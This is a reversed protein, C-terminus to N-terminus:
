LNFIKRWWSKKEKKRSVEYEGQKITNLLDVDEAENNIKVKLCEEVLGKLRAIETEVVEGDYEANHMHSGQYSAQKQDLHLNLVVQSNNESVYMHLRPYHYNGLRRVFSEVDRERDRIYAYGARRLWQEPTMGLQNKNLILKMIM